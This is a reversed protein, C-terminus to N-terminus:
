HISRDFQGTFGDRGGVRAMAGVLIRQPLRAGMMRVASGLRGENQISRGVINSQRVMQRTRKQRSRSFLAFASALDARDRLFAGLLVGDEIAQCGGQGLHPRMPHAGDGIVVVNGASWDTLRTRDFIDSRIIAASDTSDMLAPIPQHWGRFIETLLQHETGDSRGGEATNKTAFWYTRNSSLPLYGFEAGNGWTEGPDFGSVDNDSIGRWATYGSYTFALNSNLQTAVVSGIGDAGVLGCGEITSGDDLHVVIQDGVHDFARVTVGFRIVSRGVAGALIDMLDSRHIAVLPEGFAVEVVKRDMRRIWSGDPRRIGGSTVPQGARRVLDGVGIADLAALANPWLSIGAGLESLDDERELVVVTRGVRHMSAACTLGAIGGGAVVIPQDHPAPM